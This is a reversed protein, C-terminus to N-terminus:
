AHWVSPKRLRVGGHNGAEADDADGEAAIEAVNQLTRRKPRDLPRQEEAIHRLRLALRNTVDGYQTWNKWTSAANKSRGDHRMKRPIATPVGENITPNCSVWSSSVGFYHKGVIAFVIGISGSVIAFAIAKGM